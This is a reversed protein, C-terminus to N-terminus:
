PALRRNRRRDAARFKAMRENNAREQAESEVAVLKDIKTTFDALTCDFKAPPLFVLKDSWLHLLPNTNTLETVARNRLAELEALHKAELWGGDGPFWLPNRKCGASPVYTWQLDIFDLRMASLMDTVFTAPVPKKTFEGGFEHILGVHYLEGVAYHKDHATFEACPEVFVLWHHHNPDEAMAVARHKGDLTPANM